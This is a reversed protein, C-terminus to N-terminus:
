SIMSPSRYSIGEGVLTWATVIMLRMANSRGMTALICPRKNVAGNSTKLAHQLVEVRPSCYPGTPLNPRVSRATASLKRRVRVSRPASAAHM